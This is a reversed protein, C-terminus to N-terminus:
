KVEVKIPKTMTFKIIVNKLNDKKAPLSNVVGNYVAHINEIIKEDEMDIKGVAIKISTEKSRIKISKSIRGLLDRIEKDEVKGLIGLQPSPMKGAPGLIKGFTTAVRPMLPAEAIFFDYKKVLRKLANKDEYKKFELETVTDVLDNKSKLFACIKKDKVKHPVNIIANINDKRLDIGKLNLVLDVTQNFKRGKEKRLEELAKKIEMKKDIGLFPSNASEEVKRFNFSVASSQEATNRDAKSGDEIDEVAQWVNM